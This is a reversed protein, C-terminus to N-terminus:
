FLRHCTLGKSRREPPAPESSSPSNTSELKKGYSTYKQVLPNSLGSHGDVKFLIWGFKVRLGPVQKPASARLLGFDKKLEINLLAPEMKFDPDALDYGMMTFKGNSALTPLNSMSKLIELEKFSSGNMSEVYDVSAHMGIRLSTETEGTARWEPVSLSSMPWGFEYRDNIAVASTSAVGELLWNVRISKGRGDTHELGPITAVMELHSARNDLMAERIEFDSLPNKEWEPVPVGWRRAQSTQDKWAQYREYGYTEIIAEKYVEDLMKRDISGVSIRRVNKQSSIFLVVLIKETPYDDPIRLNKSSLDGLESRDIWLPVMYGSSEGGAYANNKEYDARKIEQLFRNTSETDAFANASTLMLIMSFAHLVFKNLHTSM